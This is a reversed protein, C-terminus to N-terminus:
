KYCRYLDKQSRGLKGYKRLLITTNVPLEEKATREVVNATQRINGELSVNLLYHYHCHFLPERKIQASGRRCRSDLM